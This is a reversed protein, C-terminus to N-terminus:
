TIEAKVMNIERHGKAMGWNKELIVHHEPNLRRFERRSGLILWKGLLGQKSKQATIHLFWSRPAPTSMAVSTDSSRTGRLSCLYSYQKHTHTHM